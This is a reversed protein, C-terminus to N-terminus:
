LFLALHGVYVLLIVSIIIIIIIIIIIKFFILKGSGPKRSVKFFDIINM